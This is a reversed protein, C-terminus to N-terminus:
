GWAVNVPPSHRQTATGVRQTRHGRDSRGGAVARTSGGIQTDYSFSGLVTAYVKVIDDQVVPGLLDEDGVFIVNTGDLSWYELQQAAANGRFADNGTASDFQTVEAYVVVKKGLHADPDKAILAWDREGIVAYDAPNAPTPPLTPTQRPAGANWTPDDPEGDWRDPTGDGDRDSEPAKTASPQAPAASTAGADRLAGLLGATLVLVIIAVGVIAWRVTRRRRSGHRSHSGEASPEDIPQDIGLLTNNQDM